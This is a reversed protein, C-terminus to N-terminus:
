EWVVLYSSLVITGRDVGVPQGGYTTSYGLTNNQGKAIESTVDVIWPAVDRGPCWGGRGFYWTGHQNPVVGKGVDQACGLASQAGPFSLLHEKGGVTFHHEHNCFEACNGASSGHGTDLVYLDVAKATSPVTVNKPGHAADYGANWAGGTWLPIAQTPRMGKGRNSLRLSLSVVYNTKRPDWQGSAWWRFHTKGGNKLIALMGSIDTVWRTERWYSTVWRAIETNCPWPPPGADPDADAGADVPAPPDCVLLGSLYDWAGCEGDRHHDCDMSLDVELTDFAAMASSDPLNVEIELADYVTQAKALVISTPSKEALLGQERTWEFDYYAPEYGLFSLKPVIGNQALQGLMGVERIRQFRDIAFGLTDYQKYPLASKQRTRMMDGIWGALETAGVDVFHVRKPWEGGANAAQAAWADRVAPWGAEASSQPLFFYHVNKPSSALLATQLSQKFLGASYDGNPYVVVGPAYVLLVYSDTGTWERRFDWEGDTTPLVFPGAVDKPLTGYPGENFATAPPPRLCALVASCLNGGDTTGVELCGLVDRPVSGDGTDIARANCTASCADLDLEACQASATDCAAACRDPGVDAPADSADPPADGGGSCAFFQAALGAVVLSVVMAGLLRLVSGM